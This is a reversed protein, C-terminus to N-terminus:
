TTEKLGSFLSRAKELDSPTGIDSWFEHLPFVSVIKGDSLYDRLLDTMNYFRKPITSLVEPSLAYIGANCLFRQSPKEEIGLVNAGNACIVGYPIQVNYEVAAVTILSGQEKHYACLHSFNSTTLIDGNMVLLPGDLRDQLLSLSGGTGMKEKEHLYRIEIGFGNGSGFHNEIVHSLYNVSLYCRPIGAQAIRRVQRELLPIGNIDVMSKPANKVVSRLRLGEGGAMIVAASFGMDKKEENAGLDFLHVLRIYRGQEDILPICMVNAHRMLAMLHSDPSHALATLPKTNMAKLAKTQLTGGALLCRRVDGDTLTGLLKGEKDAVVAIRRKSTEISRVAEVLTAEPSLPIETMIYEIHM